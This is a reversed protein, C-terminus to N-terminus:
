SKISKHAHEVTILTRFIYNLVRVFSFFSFVAVIGKQREGGPEESIERTRRPVKERM